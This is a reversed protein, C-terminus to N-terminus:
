FVCMSLKICKGKSSLLDCCADDAMTFFAVKSELDSVQFESSRFDEFIFTWRHDRNFLGMKKAKRNFITFANYFIIKTM